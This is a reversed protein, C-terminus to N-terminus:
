DLDAAASLMRILKEVAADNMTLTSYGTDHYITLTTTGDTNRGVSYSKKSKIEEPDTEPKPVIFPIIKGPSNTDEYDFCRDDDNSQSDKDRWFWDKISM